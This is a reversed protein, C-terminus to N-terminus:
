RLTVSLSVDECVVVKCFCHLGPPTERSSAGAKGAGWCPGRSVLIDLSSERRSQPDVRESVPPGAGSPRLAPLSLSKSDKVGQEVKGEDGPKALTAHQPPCSTRLAWTHSVYPGQGREGERPAGGQWCWGCTGLLSVQISILRGLLVALPFRFGPLARSGPPGLRGVWVTAQPVQPERSM